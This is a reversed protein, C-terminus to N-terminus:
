HFNENYLPVSTENALLQGRDHTLHIYNRDDCRTGKLIVLPIKGDTGGLNGFPHRRTAQLNYAQTGGWRRNL